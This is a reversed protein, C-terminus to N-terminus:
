GRRVTGVGLQAKGFWLVRDVEAFIDHLACARLQGVM